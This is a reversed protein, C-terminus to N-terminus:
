RKRAIISEFAHEHTVGEPHSDKFTGENHRLLEWDKYMEIIEGVRFLSKTFPANDPTAPLKDTFIGIIHYGGSLTNEQAASIFANRKDKEPLHLVGSAIIVDYQKTFVYGTLDAQFFNVKIEDLQAFHKAKEIGSHSLDFADVNHGKGALFISNRGEGCGVDLIMSSNKFHVSFEAVDKTPGKTFTSVNVNRYSKEWFPQKPTGTM